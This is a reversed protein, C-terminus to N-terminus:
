QGIIFTSQVANLKLPISTYTVGNETTYTVETIKSMKGDYPNWLEPAIKGKVKVHTDIRDDTSNAFFYINKGDKIKHIYSLMGNASKPQPNGEFTVDASINMAKLTETIITATPHPIFVAHGNQKNIQIQSGTGKFITKVLANVEADMGFEASKVPLVSTAIINGGKDYFAKIKQLAKVSIVEGGPIILTKYHQNNVVNNLVLENGSLSIKDGALSEPHIFTFDRHVQNTLMDSIELYDTGPAVNKGWAKNMDFKFWAELSAIPYLVAIDAVTKGGQLMMCTRGAWM